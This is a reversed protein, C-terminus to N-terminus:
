LGCRQKTDEVTVTVICETVDGKGDEYEVCIDHQGIDDCKFVTQSARFLVTDLVNDSTTGVIACPNVMPNQKPLAAGRSLKAKKNSRINLTVAAKCQLQPGIGVNSCDGVGGANCIGKNDVVTLKTICSLGKNHPSQLALRQQGRRVDACTLTRSCRGNQKKWKTLLKSTCKEPVTTNKALFKLDPSLTKQLSKGLRLKVRGSCRLEAVDECKQVPIPTPTPTPAAPPSFRLIQGRWDDSVIISGDKLQLVDVPRGLTSQGSNWGDAFIFHKQVQTGTSDLHVAAVRYGIKSSRDWSGHEAILAVRGDSVNTLLQSSEQSLFTIGLAAVHPGLATAPQQYSDCSKVLEGPNLSPDSFIEFSAADRLLPTGAGRTHCWPFGFHLGITGNPVRNLEDDPLDDGLRDRGNETLWLDHTDPHWTFGVSNRVGSAVIEINQGNLDMRVVTSFLPNPDSSGTERNCVNCPAGVAMHLKGQPSVGLYRWDHNVNAPWGNAIMVRGELLKGQLAFSDPNPYAYITSPTAVYLTNQYWIIGNPDSLDNIVTVTNDAAGDSNSDIVAYVFLRRSSVYVITTDGNNGKSLTMSRAGFVGTAFCSVSHNVYNDVFDFTCEYSLGVHMAVLVAVLLLNM